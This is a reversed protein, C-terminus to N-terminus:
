LHLSPLTIFVLIAPKLLRGYDKVTQFVVSIVLRDVDYKLLVENNLDRARKFPGDLLIVDGLPFENPYLKNQASLNFNALIFCIFACFALFIKKM